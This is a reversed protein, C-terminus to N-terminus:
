EKLMRRQSSCHQQLKELLGNLHYDRKFNVNKKSQQNLHLYKFISQSPMMASESPKHALQPQDCVVSYPRGM